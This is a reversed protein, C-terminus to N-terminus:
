TMVIYEIDIFEGIPFKELTVISLTTDVGDDTITYHNNRRMKIGNSFVLAMDAKIVMGYFIYDRTPNNTGDDIIITSLTEFKPRLSISTKLENIAVVLNTKSVTTLTSLEGSVNSARNIENSLGTSLENIAGVLNAKTSTTLLSLTGETDKARNSEATVAANTAQIMTSLSADETTRTTAEDSLNSKIENIANVLSTKNTTTLSALTGIYGLLSSDGSIRNSEEVLLADDLKYITNMVTTSGSIYNGTVTKMTGNNNLGVAVEIKDVEGGLNGSSTSASAEVGAIRTELANAINVLNLDVGNDLPTTETSLDGTLSLIYTKIEAFTNKDSDAGFLITDIRSKETNINTQLATDANSRNTVETSLSTELLSKNTSILSELKGLTNGSTTATGTIDSKAKTIDSTIDIYSKQGGVAPDAYLYKASLVQGDDKIEQKITTLSKSGLTDANIANDVKIGKVKTVVKTNGFFGDVEGQTLGTAGNSADSLIRTRTTSIINDPTQNQIKDANDSQIANDVKVTKVKALLETIDYTTGTADGIRVARGSTAANLTSVKTLFDNHELIWTKYDDGTRAVSTGGSGTVLRTAKYVESSTDTKLYSLIDIFSKNGSPTTLTNSSSSLTVVVSKAQDTSFLYDRIGYIDLNDTGRRIQLASKVRLESEFLEQMGDDSLLKNSIRSKEVVLASALKGGLLTSNDALKSQAVYLLNEAKGGLLASDKVRYLAVDAILSSVNIIPSNAQDGVKLRRAVDVELNIASIDNLKQANAVRLQHEKVYVPNGNGDINAVGSSNFSQLAIAKDSTIASNVNLSSETKLGLKSANYVDLENMRKGELKLSDGVRKTGTFIKNFEAVIRNVILKM